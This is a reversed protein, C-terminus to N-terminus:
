NPASIRGHLSDRALMGFARGTVHLLDEHGGAEFYLDPLRLLSEDVLM